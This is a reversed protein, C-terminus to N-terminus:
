RGVLLPHVGRNIYKYQQAQPQISTQLSGSNPMSNTSKTYSYDTYVPSGNHTNLEYIYHSYSDAPRVLNANAFQPTSPMNSSYIGNSYYRQGSIQRQLEDLDQQEKKQRLIERRQQKERLQILNHQQLLELQQQQLKWKKMPMSRLPRRQQPPPSPQYHQQQQQQQQQQHQYHNRQNNQESHHQFAYYLRNPIPRDRLNYQSTTTTTTTTTTTDLEMQKPENVDISMENSDEVPKLSDSLFVINDAHGACEVCYISGNTVCGISDKDLLICDCLKCYDMICENSNMM